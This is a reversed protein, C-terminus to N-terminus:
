EGEMLDLYKGSVRDGHQNTVKCNHRGMRDPTVNTVTLTSLNEDLKTDIKYDVMEDSIISSEILWEVSTVNTVTLFKCRFKASDHLYFTKRHYFSVSVM